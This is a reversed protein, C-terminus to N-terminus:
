AAPVSHRPQDSLKTYLTAGANHWYTRTKEPQRADAVTISGNEGLEVLYADGDARILLTLCGDGFGQIDSRHTVVTDDMMEQLESASVNLTLEQCSISSWQGEPLCSALTRTRNVTCGWIGLGILLLALPIYLYKKM